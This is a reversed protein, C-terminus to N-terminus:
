ATDRVAKQSSVRLQDVDHRLFRLLVQSQSVVGATAPDAKLTAILRELENLRDNIRTSLAQATSSHDIVNTKTMLVRRDMEYQSTSACFATNPRDHILGPLSVGM